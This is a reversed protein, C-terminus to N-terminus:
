KSYIDAIKQCTLRHDNILCKIFGLDWGNVVCEICDFYVEVKSITKENMKQAFLIIISKIGKESSSCM